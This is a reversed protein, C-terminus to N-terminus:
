EIGIGIVTRRVRGAVADAISHRAGAIVVTTGKAVPAKVYELKAAAGNAGARSSGTCSAKAADIAAIVEGANAGTIKEILTSPDHPDRYIGDVGTMILLTRAGVLCAIQAATEDNDVLEVIDGGKERLSQIEM